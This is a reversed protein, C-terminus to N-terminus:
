TDLNPFNNIAFEVDTDNILRLVALAGANFGNEWDGITGPTHLAMSEEKYLTRVRKICDKVLPYKEDGPQIRTYKVLDEYKNLLKNIYKKRKTM